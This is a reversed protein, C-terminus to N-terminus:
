DRVQLKEALSAQQQADIRLPIFQQNMQAVIASDRFTQTELQRSWVGTTTVVEIVLPKGTAAAERRAIGFDSRWEIEPTPAPLQEWEKPSQVAASAPVWGDTVADKEEGRMFAAMGLTVALLMIGPLMWKM